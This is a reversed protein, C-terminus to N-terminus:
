DNFDGAVAVRARRWIVMVALRSIAKPAASIRSLM